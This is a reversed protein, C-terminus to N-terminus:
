NKVGVRYKYVLTGGSLGVAFLFLFASLSLCIELLDPKVLSGSELRLFLSTAYLCWTIMVFKMHLNVIKMAPSNEDVKVMEILGTLMTILAILTGSVHLVGSLRWAIEGYFISAVDGATALSWCAIPFHVFAPHIPHNKLM